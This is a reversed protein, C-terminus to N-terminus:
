EFISIGYFAKRFEDITVKFTLSTDWPNAIYVFSDDAGIVTYMHPGSLAQSTNNAGIAKIDAYDEEYATFVTCCINKGEQLKRLIENFTDDDCDKIKTYNNKYDKSDFLISLATETYDGEIDTRGKDRFLGRQNTEMLYRDVAIELARVDLDGSSYEKAGELEAKSITYKKGVGKLEVTISGDSNQVIQSNLIKKLKPNLTISKITALFWCDGLRGQKFNNDIAGNASDSNNQNRYQFRTKLRKLDRNIFEASM